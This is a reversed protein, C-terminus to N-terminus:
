SIIDTFWINNHGYHSMLTLTKKLNEIAFRCEFSNGAATECKRCATRAREDIKEVGTADM